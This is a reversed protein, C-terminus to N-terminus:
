DLVVFLWKAVFGLYGYDITLPLGTAVPALHEAIKPGIYLQTSLDASEGPAVRVANSAMGIVYRADTDGVPM